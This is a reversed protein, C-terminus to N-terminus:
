KVIILMDNIMVYKCFKGPSCVDCHDQGTMNM